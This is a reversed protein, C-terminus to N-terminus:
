TSIFIYKLVLVLYLYQVQGWGQNSYTHAITMHICQWICTNGYSQTAMHMHQCICTNGYAHTAMHMHQWICTNGYAHTAINMHQWICTNGSSLVLDYAHTAMPMHVYAMHMHQWIWTNSYAHTAIHM